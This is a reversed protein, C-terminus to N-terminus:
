MGGRPPAAAPMSQPTGPVPQEEEDMGMQQGVHDKLEDIDGVTHEDNDPPMAEDPKRKYEHEVIFGKNKSRRIHMKHPPRSSSKKGGKGSKKKGGMASRVRSSKMDVNDKAPTVKEGKHLLALGTETVRDIGDEYSPVKGVPIVREGRRLVVLGTKKVKSKDKSM